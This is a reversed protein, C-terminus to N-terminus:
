PAPFLAFATNTAVLVDVNNRLETLAAVKELLDRGMASIGPDKEGLLFVGFSVCDLQMETSCRFAEATSFTLLENAAASLAKPKLAGVISVFHSLARELLEAPHSPDPVDINVGHLMGRLTEIISRRSADSASQDVMNLLLSPILEPSIGGLMAPDFLTPPYTIHFM